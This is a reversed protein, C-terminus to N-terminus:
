RVTPVRISLTRQLLQQRLVTPDAASARDADILRTAVDDGQTCTVWGVWSRKGSPRTHRMAVVVVSPLAPCDSIVQDSM